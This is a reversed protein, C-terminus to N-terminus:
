RGGSQDADSGADAVTAKRSMLNAVNVPRWYSGGASVCTWAWRVWGTLSIALWLAWGLMMLRYAFVPISFFEVSPTTGDLRDLYWRLSFASSDNGTVLMEPYGLLGQRLASLLASAALLTVILLVSQFLNFRWPSSAVYNRRIALLVFWAVVFFVSDVSSQVLGVGLLIWAVMGLPGPVVRSLVAAIAVVVILVGWLLVAPGVLPGATFLVVRDQPVALTMTANVAQAGLDLQPSRYHNSAASVDRWDLQVAHEGPTIPLALKNKEARLPQVQGDIRVSLLEAGDPLGIVHNGGASSRLRLKASADSSRQGVTTDIQVEDFTLTGGDIGSPRSLSLEVAEGPWPLWRPRWAGGETWGAPALGASEVHWSPTASVTWREIQGPHTSTPLRLRDARELVSAFSRSAGPALDVVAEGEEVKIGPDTVAEGALLPIRVTTQLASPGQRRVVTRVTWTQDFMVHREVEAFPPLDAGGSFEKDAKAQAERVRSLTLTETALGRADIGSLSWRALQASVRRPTLPLHVPVDDQHAPIVIEISTIGPRVSAWILGKEDRLLAPAQGGALVSSPRINAGPSPLPVATRAQAHVELKLTITNGAAEIRLDALDACVPACAPAPEPALLRARLEGLLAEPPFTSQARADTTTSGLGIAAVVGLVAASSLAGRLKRMMAARDFEWCRWLALGLLLVSLVSWLASGAPPLLTLSLTQGSAIPGQSALEIVTWRWSPIGPGTQVKLNPDPKAPAPRAAAQRELPAMVSAAEDRLKQEAYGELERAVPPAAPAPARAPARTSRVMGATAQSYSMGLAPYMAQRIQDVAFPVLMIAILVGSFLAGRTAWGRLKANAPVAAAIARFLVLALWMFKPAGWTHWTLVLGALLILAPLPGVVRFTVAAILLVGFIDWLTWSMLWEGQVSDAGSAHILRWGPPLNLEAAWGSLPVTWGSAPIERASSDIRSDAELAISAERLEVGRGAASRTVPLDVGNVAVRGLAFQEPLDLRWSRGITGDIRDQVSFGGGDFDLWLTRRIQLRDAAGGSDGRQVEAIRLAAGPQLVFSPLGAWEAPVGVSKPDVAPPGELNVVRVENRPAFSWVEQEGAGEPLKLETAASMRRSTVNLVWSGARAQVKLSGDADIRAPLGGEVALPVFGELVAHPVRVERQRGSISFEYRVTSVMPVDDAFQRFVRMSLSDVAGEKDPSARLWLQGSADPQGAFREGDITVSVKAVQRPLQLNLPLQQWDFRGAVVHHGPGMHLSPRGNVPVVAAPEGDLRVDRPWAEVDGPLEVTGDAFADVTLTFAGQRGSLQMEIGAPWICQASAPEAGTRPCEPAPPNHRAWDVWPRLPAPVEEASMRGTGAHALSVCALLGAVLVVIGHPKM